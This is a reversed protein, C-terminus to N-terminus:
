VVEFLPVPADIGKLSIPALQNFHFKEPDALARVTAESVLIQMPQAASCLRAALNVNAGVVTYNLRDEAGMNGAFANGTHIGIGVTIQPADAGREQNWQKLDRTMLQAAVIAKEAHNELALPAGYLAMIEDGVFKDVVGHTEDIIRCMRTMYTNLLAILKQPPLIESLPTFGRIDSFLMTLTRQEGGLEIPTNLITAAIEKSVVKNLVGRIREKDRLSVVMKQFSHSLIAVEDHRKEVPPLDLGEFKGKGIEESAVALQTIPKTLRKSIRALVIMSLLFLVFALFFLNYSLKKILTDRVHSLVRQIAFKEVEPVLISFTLPGIPIDSPIYTIKDLIVKGPQVQLTSSPFTKGDASFAQLLQGKNYLLVPKHITQAIEGALSSLSYGIIIFPPAQTAFEMLDVYPGEKRYVVFPNTSPHATDLASRTPFLDESLLATAKTFTPDIHMIGVANEKSLALEQTMKSKEILLREKQKLVEYIQSTTAEAPIAVEEPQFPTFTLEEPSNSHAFLLFTDGGRILPLAKLSRKEKQPIAIWLEGQSDKAWLPTYLEGSEPSILATQNHQDTVQVFAIDPDQEILSAAIEWTGKKDIQIMQAVATLQAAEHIFRYSIWSSSVQRLRKQVNTYSQTLEASAGDIDIRVFIRPVLYSLIAILLFISGVSLFLKARISRM